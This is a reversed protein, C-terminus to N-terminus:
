LSFEIGITFVIGRRQIFSFDFNPQKEKSSGFDMIYRLDLVVRGSNMAPGGFFGAAFGFHPADINNKEDSNTFGEYKTSVKGLSTTFYPGALIGFRSQSPLFNVKLLLPIDLSTYTMDVYASSDLRGRLGQGFMFNLETQLGIYNTFGYVGYLVLNPNPMVEDKMNNAKLWNKFDDQAEHIGIQAGFRLGLSWRGADQSHLATFAMFLVMVTLLVKKM